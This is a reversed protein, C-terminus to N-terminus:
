ARDGGPRQELHGKLLVGERRFKGASMKEHLGKWPGKEWQAVGRAQDCGSRSKPAGQFSPMDQTRRPELAWHPRVCLLHEASLPRLSLSQLRTAGERGVTPRFGVRGRWCSLQCPGLIVVGPAERGAAWSRDDLNEMKSALPLFPSLSSFALQSPKERLRLRGQLRAPGLPLSLSCLSPPGSGPYGGWGGRVRRLIPKM